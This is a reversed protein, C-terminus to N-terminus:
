SLSSGPHTLAYKKFPGHREESHEAKWAQPRYLLDLETSDQLATVAQVIRLAHLTDRAVFAPCRSPSAPPQETGLDVLVTRCGARNGAEVDDLIDGIFWSAQLDIDREAAARLLMGPQPKRCACRFALEPVVGDPHHPCHYFGDLFVGQASLNASLSAHMRQLDAETFYGRAIGSQNTVVILLFGMAQLERLAPAIGDYLRLQEPRSPYHVSHVLTGDRDLFVARNM